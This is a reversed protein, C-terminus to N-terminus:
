GCVRARERDAAILGGCVATRRQLFVCGVVCAAGCVAVNCSYVGLSAYGVACRKRASCPRVGLSACGVVRHVGWVDCTGRVVAGPM